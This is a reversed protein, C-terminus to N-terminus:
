VLGPSSIYGHGSEVGRRDEGGDARQPYTGCNYYTHGHRPFPHSLVCVCVLWVHLVAGPHFGGKVHYLKLKHTMSKVAEEYVWKCYLSVFLSKLTGLKVPPFFITSTEPFLKIFQIFYIPILHYNNENINLYTKMQGDLHFELKPKCLNNHSNLKLFGTM